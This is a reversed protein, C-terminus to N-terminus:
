IRPFQIQFYRGSPSPADVLDRSQDCRSRDDMYEGCYQPPAEQTNLMAFAPSIHGNDDEEVQERGHYVDTLLKELTVLNRAM